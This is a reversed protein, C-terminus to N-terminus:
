RVIRLAIVTMDDPRGHRSAADLISSPIDSFHRAASPLISRQLLELSIHAWVGDSLLLLTDGPSLEERIPFPAAKCSGLQAKAAGETIHRCDGARSLLYARSDGVSVGVALADLLTVGLFTSPPGKLLASDLSKMWGSWTAHEAMLRATSGACFKQFMQIAKKSSREANGGGDCLVAFPPEERSVLFSDENDKEARGQQPRTAAFCEVRM